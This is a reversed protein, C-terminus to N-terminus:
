WNPHQNLEPEDLLVINCQGNVSSAISIITALMNAEGSSLENCDVKKGKRYFSYSLKGVIQLQKLIYINSFQQRNKNFQEKRRLNLSLIEDKFEQNQLISYTYYLSEWQKNTFSCVRKYAPYSFSTNNINMTMIRDRLMIPSTINEKKRLQGGISVKPEYNIRKFVEVLRNIVDDEKEECLSFFMQTIINNTTIFNGGAKAGVYHYFPVDYNRINTPFRDYLGFHAAVINPIVNSKVPCEEENIYVVFGKGIRKIKILDTGNKYALSIIEYRKKTRRRLTENEQFYALDVFFEIISRLIYSKGVGNQGIILSFGIGDVSRDDDIVRIDYVQEEDRVTAILLRIGCKMERRNKIANKRQEGISSLDMEGLIKINSLKEENNPM